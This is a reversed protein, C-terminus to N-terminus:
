RQINAHFHDALVFSHQADVTSTLLQALTRQAITMHVLNGRRAFLENLNPAISDLCTRLILLCRCRLSPKHVGLILRFEADFGFPSM